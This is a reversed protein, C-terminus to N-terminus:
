LLRSYQPPYPLVFASMPLYARAQCGEVDFGYSSLVGISPPADSDAKPPTTYGVLPPYVATCLIASVSTLQCSGHTARMNLV